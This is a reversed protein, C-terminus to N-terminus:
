RVTYHSLCRPAARSVEEVPPAPEEETKWASLWGGPLQQGTSTRSGMPPRNLGAVSAATTATATAPTPSVPSQPGALSQQQQQQHSQLQGLIPPSQAPSVVSSGRSNISIPSPSRSSSLQPLPGSSIKRGPM